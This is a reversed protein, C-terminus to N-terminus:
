EAMSVCLAELLRLHLVRDRTMSLRLQDSLLTMLELSLKQSAIHKCHYMYYISLLNKTQLKKIKSTTSSHCGATRSAQDTCLWVCKGWDLGQDQM